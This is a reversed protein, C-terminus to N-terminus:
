LGEDEETELVCAVAERIAETIKLQQERLHTLKAVHAKLRTHSSPSPTNVMVSSSRPSQASLRRSQQSVLVISVKTAPDQKVRKARPGIVTATAIAVGIGGSVNVIMRKTGPGIDQALTAVVSLVIVCAIFVLVSSSENFRSPVSRLRYTIVGLIGLQAAKWSGAVGWFLFHHDATCERRTDSVVMYPSTVAWATLIAVDFLMLLATLAVVKATKFRKVLLSETNFICDLRYSKATWSSFFLGSGIIYFAVKANCTGMTQTPLNFCLGVIFVVLGVMGIGVVPLSANRMHSTKRHKYMFVVGAVVSAFGVAVVSVSAVLEATEMDANPLCPAPFNHSSCSLCVGQGKDPQFMGVDCPTCTSSGEEAFTQSPCVLCEGQWDDLTSATGTPCKRCDWETGNRFRMWGAPCGLAFYSAKWGVFDGHAPGESNTVMRVYVESANPFIIPEPVVLGTLVVLDSDSSWLRLEDTYELAFSELVVTIGTAPAGSPLLPKLNWLCDANNNYHGSNSHCSAFNSGFGTLTTEPACGQDCILGFYGPLCKCFHAATKTGFVCEQRPLPLCRPHSQPLVVFTSRAKMDYGDNSMYALEYLGSSEPATMDFSFSGFSSGTADSNADGTKDWTTYLWLILDNGGNKLATVVQANTLPQQTPVFLVGIWDYPLFGAADWEFWMSYTDGPCISSIGGFGIDCFPSHDWGAACDCTQDVTCNGHNGCLGKCSDPFCEKTFTVVHRATPGGDSPTLLVVLTVRVNGVAACAFTVPFFMWDPSMVGVAPVGLSVSLIPDSSLSTLCYNHSVSENSPVARWAFTVNKDLKTLLVASAASEYSFGSTVTNNVVLPHPGVDLSFQAVEACSPVLLVLLLCHTLLCHIMM